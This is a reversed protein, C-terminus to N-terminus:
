QAPRAIYEEPITGTLAKLYAVIPQVEKPTLERGFQHRGMWTVAEALDSVAGDHFYPATKEVNRLSAVKFVMADEPRKTVQSRGQDDQDPWPTVVGAKQFATGGLYPGQHCGACGSKLFANLGVKEERTLAEENGKLYADWRSPTVLMREFAGIARSVNDYTVPQREGPFADTFRKVYTSDARLHKVVEKSNPMGMEVPNLIPGKAQEEITLARGDWFQAVQAAANYVSPANRRGLQGKVGKSFQRGDVGYAKLDHCSNCSMQHDESLLTEYFLRRGLDIRAPSMLNADSVMVVPLPAFATLQDRDVTAEQRDACACPLTGAALCLLIIPVKHM